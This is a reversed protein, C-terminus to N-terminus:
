VDIIHKRIAGAVMKPTIPYYEPCWDVPKVGAVDHAPVVTSKMTTAERILVNTKGVEWLFDIGDVKIKRM